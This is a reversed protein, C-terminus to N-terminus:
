KSGHRALHRQVRRYHSGAPPQVLEDLRRGVHNNWLFVIEPYTLARGNWWMCQDCSFQAAVGNGGTVTYQGIASTGGVSDHSYGFGGVVGDTEAYYSEDVDRGWFGFIKNRSADYGGALFQWADLPTDVSDGIDLAEGIFPTVGDFMSIHPNDFSGFASHRTSILLAQGDVSAPDHITFFYPDGTQGAKIKFWGAFTCSTLGRVDFIDDQVQPKQFFTNSTTGGVPSFPGRSGFNGVPDAVHGVVSVGPTLSRTLDQVGRFGLLNETNAAENCRWAETYDSLNFSM